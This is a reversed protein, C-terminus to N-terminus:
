DLTGNIFLNLTVSNIKLDCVAINFFNRPYSFKSYCEILRM